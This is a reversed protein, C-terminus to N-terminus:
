WGVLGRLGNLWKRAAAKWPPVHTTMNKRIARGDRYIVSIAVPEDFWKDVCLPLNSPPPGESTVFDWNSPIPLVGFPRSGIASAVEGPTMGLRIRDYRARMGRDSKPCLFGSALGGLVLLGLLWWRYRRLRVQMLTVTGFAATLV